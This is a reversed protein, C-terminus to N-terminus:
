SELIAQDVDDVAAAVGVGGPRNGAHQGARAVPHRRNRFAPQFPEVFHRTAMAFPLTYCQEALGVRRPRGGSGEVSRGAWFRSLGSV